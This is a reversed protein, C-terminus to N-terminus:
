QGAFSRRVEGRTIQVMELLHEADDLKKQCAIDRFRQVLEHKLPVVHQVM